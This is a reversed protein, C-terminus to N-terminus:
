NLNSDGELGSLVSSSTHLLYTVSTNNQAFWAENLKAILQFISLDSRLSRRPLVILSGFSGM